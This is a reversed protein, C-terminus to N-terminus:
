ASQDTSDSTLYLKQGDSIMDVDIIRGGEESLIVFSAENSLRLEQAAIEVLKQLDSPLWVVVGHKRSPEEHPHFPFM